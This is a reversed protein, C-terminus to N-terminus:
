RCDVSRRYRTEHKASFRRSAVPPNSGSNKQHKDHCCVLTTPRRRSARVAQIIMDAQKERPFAEKEEEDHTRDVEIYADAFAAPLTPVKVRDCFTKTPLLKWHGRDSVRFSVMSSNGEVHGQYLAYTFSGDSRLVFACDNPRLKKMAFATAEKSHCLIMDEKRMRDGIRYKPLSRLVKYAHHIDNYMIPKAIDVEIKSDICSSTRLRNNLQYSHNSRNSIKM